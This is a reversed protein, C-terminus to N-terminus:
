LWGLEQLQRARPKQDLSVSAAVLKDPQKM